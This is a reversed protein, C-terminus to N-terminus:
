GGNSDGVKHMNVVRELTQKLANLGEQADVHYLGTGLGKFQELPSPAMCHGGVRTVLGHAEHLEMAVDCEIGPGDAVWYRWARTFGWKEYSGMIVTKVEGTKRCVEPLTAVTIGARHLEMRCQTDALDAGVGALNPFFSYDKRSPM